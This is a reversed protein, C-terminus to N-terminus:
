CCATNEKKSGAVASGARAEFHEVLALAEALDVAGTYLSRGLIAGAIGSSMRELGGEIDALSAVGGSIIVPIAVSEALAATADLNAGTLMGDRGIDTYVIAAVGADEFRRALEVASLESTDLWGSVAVRGDRADIGLVVRGPFERAADRVVQPERLAVTGMVVRDLGLALAAEVDAVRRVGGGLQVPVGQMEQVVARIAAENRRVGDRAGDLDVVHFRRIRFAAWRRAADAPDPAYVTVDEYRGQALRVCQGDLLDISPIVEFGTSM